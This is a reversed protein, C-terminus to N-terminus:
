SDSIAKAAELLDAKTRNVIGPRFVVRGDTPAGRVDGYRLQTAKEGLVIPLIPMYGFLRFSLWQRRSVYRNPLGLDNYGEYLCVVDYNLYWYDELTYRFSYAGAQNYGLNVVSYTAPPTATQNLGQALIFPFSDPEDLGFGLVTSGGLAVVRIENPHKRGVPEGRYGWVNLGALAAFKHHLHVDIALLVALTAIISLVITVAAFSLTKRASLRSPM